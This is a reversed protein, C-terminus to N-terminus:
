DLAKVDLFFDIKKKQEESAIAQQVKEMKNRFYRKLRAAVEAESLKSAMRDFHNFEEDSDDAEQEM